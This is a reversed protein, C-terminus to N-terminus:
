YYVSRYYEPVGYGNSAYTTQVTPSGDGYNESHQSVYSGDGNSVSSSSVTIATAQMMALMMVVAGFFLAVITKMM